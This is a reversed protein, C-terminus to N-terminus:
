IRLLRNAGGLLGASRGLSPDVLEDDSLLIAVHV